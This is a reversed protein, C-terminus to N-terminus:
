LHTERARERRQPLPDDLLLGVADHGPERLRHAPLEFRLSPGPASVTRRPRQTLRYMRDCYDEYAEFLEPGPTVEGGSDLQEGIAKVTDPLEM